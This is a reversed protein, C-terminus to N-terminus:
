LFIEAFLFNDSQRDFLQLLGTSKEWENELRDLVMSPSLECLERFYRSIYKWQQETKVYGLIESVMDDLVVQSDGHDKHLVKILLTNLMGRRINASWFLKEGRYRAAFREAYTYTFLTESENLVDISARTFKGWIDSDTCRFIGM